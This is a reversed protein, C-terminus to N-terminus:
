YLYYPLGDSSSTELNTLSYDLGLFNGHEWPKMVPRALLQPLLNPLTPKCDQCEDDVSTWSQHFDQSTDEANPTAIMANDWSTPAIPGEPFNM